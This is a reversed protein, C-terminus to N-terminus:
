QSNYWDVVDIKTRGTAAFLRYFMNAEARTYGMEMWEAIKANKKGGDLQVRYVDTYESPALGLEQRAYDYKLETTQPSKANPDYDTMYAKMLTDKATDSIGPMKAIAERTQIDRITTYGPEPKLKDIKATTALYDKTSVGKSKVELFKKTDGTATDMIKVKQANNMGKFSNYVEDLEREYAAQNEKSYNNARATKINSLAKNLENDAVEMLIRSAETGKSLGMMWSTSYTTGLTEHMAKERAYSYVMKMATARMDDDMAKYSSNDVMKELIERASQGQTQAMKQYEEESLRYDEHYNGESDRYSVTKPIYSPIVSESQAKNLRNIEDTVSDKRVKSSYGPSLLNYALGGENKETEGWANQYDIQQYDWGPIKQSAKGLQKQMWEPVNSDKDVFTTQRNEETSRELQGLLTNTLGQSLYNVAANIFFQGLNNESYKINDLSDNMGQLMSMQLMPDAISTFIKELDAFTLDKNSAIEMFQAGMFLPMAVPTLWDLTYTTGDPMNISYPQQGNMQDFAAQEDDEDPGGNLIGHSKLIAGLAFIGTGTLTKSLSNIIDTGTIDQGKAAWSGIRGNAEALKTNGAVKQATKILIGLPSYEEARTLVNAPTKTFPMIGEGVVGADKKLKGLVNALASNDHFTTEQAEKVAYAMAKDILEPDAKQIDAATKVGNAQLYGAMAHTFAAKGFAEDGFRDNNMMWNTAKRYGEMPAMVLDAAKRVTENKSNSKFIRRKDMVGQAFDGSASNGEGYKGGSNITSKVQQYYDDLSKQLKKNVVVSKTRGTKGKTVKNAITEIIGGTLDKLRYVAANGVNGAVNRVTTKLNGLMNTYRLANWKDLITSPIQDAVNQQIKEMVEDRQQDTTANEYEAILQQDIQIANNLRMDRVMNNVAIQAFQLKDQPMLNRIIKMAQLGQATNTGLKQVDSLITLWEKKARAAAQMDGSDKAQQYVEAAHNLILAGRASMEAGAIGIEVDKGFNTRATDWDGAKEIEQQARQTAADNTIRMYSFDGKAVPEEMAEALDDPTNQSGYVNATTASVNNGNIDQKPLEMPRVDTKRDPQANEESLVENYAPKGTFNQEAAGTGKIQGGDASQNSASMQTDTQQASQQNRLTNLYDADGEVRKGTYFDTYGNMLRDNIILEIRKSAANNEQGNDNIIANLGREIDEYSMGEEDLLQAISDSTHRKNGSWGKEGGSEYHLQENYTREGKTSDSLESLMWAAQEQYFPKVDPNEYMYAKVSRKGVESSKRDAMPDAVGERNPDRGWNEFEDEYDSNEERQNQAPAQETQAEAAQKQRVLNAMTEQVLEGDTKQVPQAEAQPQVAEQTAEEAAMREQRARNNEIATQTAQQTNKPKNVAPNAMAEARNQQYQAVASGGLSSMGGSAMSVLATNVAENVLEQDAMDRAQEPSIGQMIKSTISLQYESKEQMIAADALVTGLLSIEETTAEIGAQLLASKVMQMVTQTGGKATRILNDLPIKETLAEIGATTTALLAAQAPTAGRRSADAMTQSFSGTAALTAGGLAGGGLYARAVADATGMIAQYGINAARGAFGTGLDNVINESTQGRVANTFTDGITFANPDVTKYGGTGLMMEAVQGGTGILGSYAKVPISAINALTGRGGRKNVFERVQADVEKARKENKSRSFTRELENLRERGYEDLMDDVTEDGLVDRANYRSASYRELALRQEEPLGTIVEMDAEFRKRDEAENYEKEAQEARSRLVREQQAMRNVEQALEPNYGYPNNQIANVGSVSETLEKRKAGLAKFYDEHQKKTRDKKIEAANIHTKADIRDEKKKQIDLKQTNTKGRTQITETKEPGNKKFEQFATYAQSPQKPTSETNKVTARITEVIGKLEKDTLQYAM